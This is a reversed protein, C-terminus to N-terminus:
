PPPGVATTTADSRPMIRMAGMAQTKASSAVARGLDPPTNSNTSRVCPRRIDDSTPQAMIRPLPTTAMHSESTSETIMECTSPPMGAKAQSM